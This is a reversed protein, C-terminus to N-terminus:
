KKPHPPLWLMPLGEAKEVRELDHHDATVLTANVLVAAALAFCDALSPKYRRKMKGAEKLFAPSIADLVTLPANYLKDLIEDALSPCAYLRDYYVETLNVAHVFLTIEGAAAQEFLGNVIEAGEEKDLFAIIACADLVYNV